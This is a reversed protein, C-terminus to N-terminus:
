RSGKNKLILKKLADKLFVILRDTDLDPDVNERYQDPFLSNAFTILLCCFDSSVLFSHPFRPCLSFLVLSYDPGADGTCM